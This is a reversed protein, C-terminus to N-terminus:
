RRHALARCPPRGPGSLSLSLSLRGLSRRRAASRSASCAPGPSHLSGAAEATGDRRRGAHRPVSTRSRAGWSCTRTCGSRRRRTWSRGLSPSADVRVEGGSVRGRSWRFAGAELVRAHRARRASRNRLRRLLPPPALRPRPLGLGPHTRRAPLVGDGPSRRAASRSASQASLPRLLLQPLQSARRPAPLSSSSANGSLPVIRESAAECSAAESSRRRADGAAAECLAEPRTRPIASPPRPVHRRRRRDDSRPAGSACGAATGRSSGSASALARPQPM